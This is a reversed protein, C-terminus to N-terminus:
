INKLLNLLKRNAFIRQRKHIGMDEVVRKEALIQLYRDCSPRPINTKNSLMASTILPQMFTQELARILNLNAKEKEVVSRSEKFLSDIDLAIKLSLKAQIEMGKLFYLLWSYWDEKEDVKSLASTYEEKNKEFYGSPYLIPISLLGQDILYLSILLRGTRGNGDEFPHIAEFRHHIIGCALLPHINERNSVFKLLGEMLMPVQTADPPLYKAKDKTTGQVGIWVDGKRFEGPHKGQGRVGQLLRKHIERVLIPKLGAKSIIEVGILMAEEYNRIELAENRKEPTQETLDIQYADEMSAQTGELQASSEAEKALIPRMLLTPNHLLRSMQNLSAIAGHTDALQNALKQDYLNSLNPPFTHNLINAM